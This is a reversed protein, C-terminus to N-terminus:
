SNIKLAYNATKRLYDVNGPFEWNMERLNKVTRFDLANEAELLFCQVLVARAAVLAEFLRDIEGPDACYDLAHEAADFEVLAARTNTFASVEHVRNARQIQM